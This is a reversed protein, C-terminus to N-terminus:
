EAEQSDEQKADESELRVAPKGANLFQNELDREMLIPMDFADKIDQFCDWLYEVHDSYLELPLMSWSTIDGDIDYHVERISVTKDLGIMVRYDWSMEGDELEGM